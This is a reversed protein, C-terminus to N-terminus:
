PYTKNAITGATPVVGDLALVRLNLREARVQLLTTVALSGPIKQALEVNEQDTAGVPTGPRRYAKEFAEGIGPVTATLFPVESGARSRLIVKMPTGDPWTPRVESYLRPLDSRTIDGPTSRSSAFVLATNACAAETLGGAREEPRLRRGSLALDIAGDRLALLGGATELSPLVEARFDPEVASLNDGVAQMAALGIGTGGIRLTTATSASSWLLVAGLCTAAFM